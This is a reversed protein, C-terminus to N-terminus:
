LWLNLAILCSGALATLQSCRHELELAQGAAVEAVFSLREQGFLLQSLVIGGLGGAGAEGPSHPLRSLHSPKQRRM